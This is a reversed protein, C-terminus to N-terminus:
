DINPRKVSRGRVKAPVDHEKSTLAGGGGPEGRGLQKKQRDMRAATRGIPKESVRKQAPGTGDQQSGRAKRVWPNKHRESM